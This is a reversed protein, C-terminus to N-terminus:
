LTYMTILSPLFKCISEQHLYVKEIGGCIWLNNINMTNELFRLALSLQYRLVSCSFHKKWKAIQTQSQVAYTAATDNIIM